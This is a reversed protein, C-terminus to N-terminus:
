SWANSSGPRKRPGPEHQMPSVQPPLKVVSAVTTAVSSGCIAGFATCAGVVAMAMGGRRHGVLASAARFLDQRTLKGDRDLDLNDFLEYDTM